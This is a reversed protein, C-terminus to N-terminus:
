LETSITNGIYLTDAPLSPPMISRACFVDRMKIVVWSAVPLVRDCASSTWPLAMLWREPLGQHAGEAWYAYNLPKRIVNLRHPGVESNPNRSKERGPKPKEPLHNLLPYGWPETACWFHKSYAGPNLTLRESPKVQKLQWSCEVLSPHVGISCCQSTYPGPRQCFAFISDPM